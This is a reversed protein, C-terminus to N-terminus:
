FVYEYKMLMKYLGKDNLDNRLQKNTECHRKVIKLLNRKADAYLEPNIRENKVQMGELNPTPETSGIDPPLESSVRKHSEETNAKKPQSAPESDQNKQKTWSVTRKGM